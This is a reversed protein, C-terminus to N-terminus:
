KKIIKKTIMAGNSLQVKAIYAANSLISLSYTESNTHGKLDYLQRGLLDFITVTKITLNKSTKFLVNHDNLEIIRLTSSELNNEDISLAEDKFIIEFRENFEGVDSTFSYDSDTLNHVTNLLNDKIFITTNNLFEGQQHDISLKYLTAVTINTNFGLKIIEDENISNSEKGQIIYKGSDGDINTYLAAAFGPVLLIPADYAMADKDDTAGDVYAM